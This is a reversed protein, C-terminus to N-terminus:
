QKTTYNYFRTKLLDQCHRFHDCGQNSLSVLKHDALARRMLRSTEKSLKNAALDLRTFCFLLGQNTLAPFLKSYSKINTIYEHIDYVFIGVQRHMQCEKVSGNGFTLRLLKFMVIDPPNSRAFCRVVFKARRVFFYKCFNALHPSPHM